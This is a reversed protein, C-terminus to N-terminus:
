FSTMKSDYCLEDARTPDTAGNLGTNIKDIVKGTQLHLVWVTSNGDGVWVETQHVILVGNPGSVDNDIATHAANPVAGVFGPKLQNILANSGTDVVDIAANTRDALVYVGAVPDVLGIDFSNPFTTANAPLDIHSTIAFTEDASAAGSMALLWPAVAGALCAVLKVKSSM